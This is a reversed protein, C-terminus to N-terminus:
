PAFPVLIRLDFTGAPPLPLPGSPGEGGSVSAIPSAPAGPTSNEEVIRFEWLGNLNAWRSRVMQPRPYEPLPNEPRLASGWRTMLRPTAPRWPAPAPTVPVSTTEVAVPSPTVPIPAPAPACALALTLCSLLASLRRPSTM